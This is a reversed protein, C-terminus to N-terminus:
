VVDANKPHSLFADHSAHLHKPSTDCGKLQMRKSIDINVGGM